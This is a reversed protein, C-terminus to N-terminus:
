GDQGPVADKQRGHLPFPQPHDAQVPGRAIQQPFLFDRARSGLHHVPGVARGRGRRHSVAAVHIGEEAIEAQNREVGFAPFAPAQGQPGEDVGHTLGSGGNQGIAPDQHDAVLFASRKQHRRILHRSLDKPAHFAGAKGTTKGRRHEVTGLRSRQLGQNRTGM